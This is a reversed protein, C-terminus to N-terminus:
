LVYAGGLGLHSITESKDFSGYQGTFVYIESVQDTIPGTVFRYRLRAQTARSHRHVDVSEQSRPNEMEFHDRYIASAIVKENLHQHIQSEWERAIIQGYDTQKTVQATDNYLGAKLHLATLTSDFFYRGEITEANASPRDDAYTKSVSALLMAQPTALWTLSLTYRNGSTQSPTLVRVGDTDLYDRSVRAAHTKMLELDTLITAKNWWQSAHAAYWRSQNKKSNSMTTTTYGYSVGASTLQSFTQTVGLSARREFSIVDEPGYSSPAGSRIFTGSAQVQTLNGQGEEGFMESTHNLALGFVDDFRKQGYFHVFVSEARTEAIATTATLASMTIILIKSKMM